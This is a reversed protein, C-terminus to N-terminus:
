NIVFEHLGKQQVLLQKDLSFLRNLLKLMKNYGPQKRVFYAAGENLMMEVLVMNESNSFIIVPLACLAPDAKIERLCTLGDKKPMNIDLFLAEPMQTASHLYEMLEVGDNVTHLSLKLGLDKVIDRFLMRDDADDDAIIVHQLTNM